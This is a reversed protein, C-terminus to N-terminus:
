SFDSKFTKLPINLFFTNIFCVYVYIKLRKAGLKLKFRISSTHLMATISYFISYGQAALHKYLQYRLYPALNKGRYAKFTRIDFLYAENEKLKYRVKKFQFYRPDCWTYAAIEGEHKIGLCLCGDEYRKVLEEEQELVEPHKAITKIEPLSLFEVDLSQLQPKLIVKDEDGLCERMLYYPVIRVIWSLRHYIFRLVANEQLFLVLNM